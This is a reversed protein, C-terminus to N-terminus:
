IIENGVIAGRSLRAGRHLCIDRAITVGGATRYLVLDEDLLRSAVPREAVEHSYAVPHWFSALVQWDPQSFSQIVLQWPM